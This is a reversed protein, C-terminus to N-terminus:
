NPQAQITVVVFGQTSADIQVYIHSDTRSKGTDQTIQNVTYTQTGVITHHKSSMVRLDFQQSPFSPVGVNGSTQGGNTVSVGMAPDFSTCVYYGDKKNNNIIVVRLLLGDATPPCGSLIAAPVLLLQQVMHRRTIHM